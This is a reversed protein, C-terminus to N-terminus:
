VNSLGFSSVNSLSRQYMRSVLIVSLAITVGIIIPETQFLPPTETLLGAVYEEYPVIPKGVRRNVENHLFNVYRMLSERGNLNNDVPHKQLLQAFHTRCSPCPMLNRYSMILNKASSMDDPSPYEPYFEASTHLVFWFKAGWYRPDPSPSMLKVIIIGAFFYM